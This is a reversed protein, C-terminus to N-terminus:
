HKKNKNQYGKREQKPNNMSDVIETFSASEPLENMLVTKVNDQQWLIQFHKTNHRSNNPVFNYVQIGVCRKHGTKLHFVQHLLHLTQPLRDNTKNM